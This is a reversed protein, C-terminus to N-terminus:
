GEGRAVLAHTTAVAAAPWTINMHRFIFHLGDRSMKLHRHILKDLSARSQIRIAGAQGDDILGIAFAKKQFAHVDTTDLGHLWHLAGTKRVQPVEGTPSLLTFSYLDRRIM